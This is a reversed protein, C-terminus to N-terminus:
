NVTAIRQGTISSKGSSSTWRAMVTSTASACTAGSGFGDINIKKWLVMKPNAAQLESEEAKIKARAAAMRAAESASATVRVMDFRTPMDSTLGIKGKPYTQDEATLPAMGNLKAEIHPGSVAVEALLDDGPKWGFEQSALTKEFPKHFDSENQVMKLVARPGEVGFFYYCRSDKYRFVLGSRGKGAEPSAKRRRGKLSYRIALRKAVAKDDISKM